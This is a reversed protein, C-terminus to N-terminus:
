RPRPRRVIDFMLGLVLLPTAPAASGVVLVYIPKVQVTVIVPVTVISRVGGVRLAGRALPPPAALAQVLLELAGLFAAPLAVRPGLVKVAMLQVVVRLLNVLAPNAVALPGKDSQVQTVPVLIAVCGLARGQAALVRHHALCGRHRVVSLGEGRGTGGGRFDVPRPGSVVLASGQRDLIVRGLVGHPAWVRRHRVRRGCAVRVSRLVTDIIHM